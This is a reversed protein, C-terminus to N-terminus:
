SGVEGLIRALLGVHPVARDVELVHGSLVDGPPHLNSVTLGVNRIEGPSTADSWRASIVAKRLEVCMGYSRSRPFRPGPPPLLKRPRVQYYRKGPGEGYRPWPKQQLSPSTGARTSSTLSALNRPSSRTRCRHPWGGVDGSM